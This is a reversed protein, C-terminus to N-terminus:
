RNCPAEKRRLLFENLERIGSFSGIEYFREAVEFAALNGQALLAQYVGALDYASNEPVSARIAAAHFVGLGYDIHRMGPTRHHKDYVRIRGDEFEVNSADFLGENRFVTMLGSQGSSVFAQQV